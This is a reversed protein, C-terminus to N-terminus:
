CNVKCPPGSDEDAEDPAAETDQPDEGEDSADDDTDQDDQRERRKKANSRKKSENGKARHEGCRKFRKLEWEELSAGCLVDAKNRTTIIMMCTKTTYEGRKEKKGGKRNSKGKGAKKGAPSSKTATKVEGESDPRDNLIKDTDTAAIISAGVDEVQQDFRPGIEQTQPRDQAGNPESGRISQPNELQDTRELQAAEQEHKPQDM